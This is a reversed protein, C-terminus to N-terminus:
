PAEPLPTFDQDFSWPGPRDPHALAAELDALFSRRPREMAGLSALHPSLIQCDLFDFGWNQLQRSLHVLAIKSADRERSFMSEGFFAHGLSVGYLGGVLRFHHWVEVSHALGCEHLHCYADHMDKTIWTGTDTGRPAACATIVEEFATDLTVSFGSSRMRKRLSRRVRLHEPFLVGRPDPSWWLVPQGEEYWPFIGRRYAALLRRESLSGGIAVLGNPQTLAQEPPPFLTEEFDDLWHIRRQM